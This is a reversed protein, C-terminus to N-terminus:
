HTRRGGSAAMRFAVIIIWRDRHSYVTNTLQIAARIAGASIRKDVFGTGRIGHWKMRLTLRVYLHAM